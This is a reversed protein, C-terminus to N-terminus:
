RNSTPRGSFVSLAGVAYSRRGSTDEAWISYAGAPLGATVYLNVSVVSIERGYDHQRLSSIDIEIGAADTGLEMSPNLGKGGLYITHVRGAALTIPMQYLRGNTGVYDLSARPTLRAPKAEFSRVDGSALEVTGLRDVAGDGTRSYFSYNG